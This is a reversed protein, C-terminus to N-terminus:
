EKCAEDIKDIAATVGELSYDDITQTGRWSQGKVQMKAGKKLVAVLERDGAPNEAWAGDGLTFMNFTKAGVVVQALSDKKFPYGIITSVEGRVGDKPRHTILFFVPDRTVGEPATAKPKSVAYCVKGGSSAYSFSEWDAFRGLSAPEQAAAPAAPAALMFAAAFVLGARIM